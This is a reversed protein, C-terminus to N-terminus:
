NWTKFVRNNLQTVKVYGSHAEQNSVIIKDQVLIFHYKLFFLNYLVGYEDKFILIIGGLIFVSTAVIMSPIHLESNKLFFDLLFTLFPSIAGLFYIAYKSDKKSSKVLIECDASKKNKILNFFIIPSTILCILFLGGM